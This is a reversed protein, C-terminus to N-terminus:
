KRKIMIKGGGCKMKGGGCKKKYLLGGEVMDGDDHKMKHMRPEDMETEDNDKKVLNRLKYLAKMVSAKVMDIEASIDNFGKSDMMEKAEDVMPILEKSLYRVVNVHAPISNINIPVKGRALRLEAITDVHDILADYLEELVVHEAMADSQLHEIHTIDRARFLEGIFEGCNM